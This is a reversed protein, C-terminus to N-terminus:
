KNHDIVLFTIDEPTKDFKIKVSNVRKGDELFYEHITGREQDNKYAELSYQYFVYAKNGEIQIDSIGGEKQQLEKLFAKTEQLKFQKVLSFNKDFTLVERMEGIAYLQNNLVHMHIPIFRPNPFIVEKKVKLSNPDIVVLRSPLKQNVNDNLALVLKGNVVQFMSKHTTSAFLVGKNPIEVEKIKKNTALDIVSIYIKEGTQSFAYLKQNLIHAAQITGQLKVSQKNKAGEKWFILYSVYGNNKTMGVNADYYVYGQESHIFYAGAAIDKLNAPKTVIKVEGKKNIEYHKDNRTSSFYYMNDNKTNSLIQQAKIKSQDLLKGNKDYTALYGGPKFMDTYSILYETQNFNKLTDVQNDQATAAIKNNSFLMLFMSVFVVSIGLFKLKKM